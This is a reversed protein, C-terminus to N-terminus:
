GLFFKILPVHCHVSNESMKAYNLDAYTGCVLKRATEIKAEFDHVYEYYFIRSGM